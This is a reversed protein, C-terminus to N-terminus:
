SENKFYFIFSLYCFYKISSFVNFKKKFFNFTKWFVKIKLVISLKEDEEKIMKYLLACMIISILNYGAIFHNHMQTGYTQPRLQDHPRLCASIWTYDDYDLWALKRKKMFVNNNKHTWLESWMPHIMNGFTMPNMSKGRLGMM